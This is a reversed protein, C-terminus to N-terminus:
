CDCAHFALFVSFVSVFFSLLTSVYNLATSFARSPQSSPFYIFLMFLLRFHSHSPLPLSFRFSVQRFIQRIENLRNAALRALMKSSCLRFLLDCLRSLSLSLSHRHLSLPYHLLVHLRPLTIVTRDCRHIGVRPYIPKRSM